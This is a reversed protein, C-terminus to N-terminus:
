IGSKKGTQAAAPWRAGGAIGAFEWSKLGYRFPLALPKSIYNQM